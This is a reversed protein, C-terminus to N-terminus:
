LDIKDTTKHGRLIVASSVTLLFVYIKAFFSDNM